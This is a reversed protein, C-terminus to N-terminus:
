HIKLERRKEKILDGDGIGSMLVVGDEFILYLYNSQEDNRNILVVWKGEIILSGADKFTRRIMRVLSSIDRENTELVSSYLSDFLHDSEIYVTDNSFTMSIKEGTDESSPFCGCVLCLIGFLVTLKLIKTNM